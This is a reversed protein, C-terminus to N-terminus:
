QPTTDYKGRGTPPKKAAGLFIASNEQCVQRVAKYFASQTEPHM